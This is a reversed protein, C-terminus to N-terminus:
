QEIGGEPINGEIGFCVIEMTITDATCRQYYGFDVIQTDTGCDGSSACPGGDALELDPLTNYAPCATDGPFNGYNDFVCDGNADRRGHSMYSCSKVLVWEYWSVGQPVGDLPTPFDNPNLGSGGTPDLPDNPSLTGDSLGFHDKKNVVNNHLIVLLNVGGREGIPDKSLWRGLQPAYYRYGYFSLGSTEEVPKTSFRYKNEQAMPGTALMTKGFADYAYRAAEKGEGDTLLVVNGNSDYHYICSAFNSSEPDSGSEASASAM